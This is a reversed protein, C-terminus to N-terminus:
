RYKNFISDERGVRLEWIIDMLSRNGMPIAVRETGYDRIADVEPTFKSQILIEGRSNVQAIYDTSNEISEEITSGMLNSAKEFVADGPDVTLDGNSYLRNAVSELADVSVSNSASPRYESLGRPSGASGARTNGSSKAM